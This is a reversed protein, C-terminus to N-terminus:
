RRSRSVQIRNRPRPRASATGSAMRDPGKALGQGLRARDFAQERLEVAFEPRLAIDCHTPLQDVRAEDGRGLLAVRLGLLLRDLLTPHRLAPLVPRGLEALLVAVRAPRDLGGLGLRALAPARHDIERDRLVAVLVVDAGVAPVPQDAAPQHGVGRRMGARAQGVQEIGVVGRGPTQASV